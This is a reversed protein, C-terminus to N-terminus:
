HTAAQTLAGGSGGADDAVGVWALHSVKVGTPWGTSKIPKERNKLYKGRRIEFGFIFQFHQHM